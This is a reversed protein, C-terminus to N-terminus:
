ENIFLGGCRYIKHKITNELLKNNSKSDSNTEILTFQNKARTIGTYLLERSLIPNQQEPFILVVHDFESGQSKHVTLAFVAEYDKLLNPAIWLINKKSSNDNSNALFAIRLTNNLYPLVIGIDGNRLQFEENNKTILIPLGCFLLTSNNTNNIISNESILNAKILLNTIYKNIANVGFESHRIVCLVQFQQHLKLINEAQKNLEDFSYNQLNNQLNKVAQLYNGYGNIILNDFAKKNMKFSIKQLSNKNDEQMFINEISNFNNENVAKALQGIGSQENFRYSKQLKIISQNLLNINTNININKNTNKNTNKNAYNNNNFWFNKIIERPFFEQLENITQLNYHQLDNKVNSCLENLLSGAEVSTLQDKDGLLILKTDKSLASMLASMLDVSIMSAEDVILLDLALPNNKNYKYNNQFDGAGLLKHLTNVQQPINEFTNESIINKLNNKLKNTNEKIASELRAAAKGTPAALKINLKTNQNSDRNNNKQLKHLEQLLLIIKLVTSTKGTGPGGTIICFNRKCAIVAAVKQYDIEKNESPFVQSVLDIFKEKKTNELSDFNNNSNGSNLRNLINNEIIEEDNKYRYFYLNNNKLIFPKIQKDQLNEGKALKCIIEDGFNVLEDIWNNINDLNLQQIIEEPTFIEQTYTQRLELLKKDSIPPLSLLFKANKLVNNLDLCVHGRGLQHSVLVISFIVASSIKQSQQYMFKALVFDIAKIWGLELWCQMQSLLVQPNELNNNNKM